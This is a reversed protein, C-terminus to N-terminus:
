DREDDPEALPYDVGALEPRVPPLMREEANMQAIKARNRRRRPLWAALVLATAALWILAANSLIALWGYRSRVDRRWEDELQGFTIGFTTRLAAEFSGERRWNDFLLQMGRDGGRRRLYDVATASLLYAFRAEGERRPWDLTLSDLPPTSGTLFSLRLQWASEVDWGGSAVEAYGEDFWRPVLDGLRDHLVLHAVEHRLITAADDDRVRAGPYEPLVIRRLEPVAVGGAWEPIDGGTAAAFEAPTSALVITTSEPVAVAGLGPFHVPRRAAELVRTALGRQRPAYVISVSGARMTEASQAHIESPIPLVSGLFLSAVSAARRLLRRLTFPRTM